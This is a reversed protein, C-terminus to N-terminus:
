MTAGPQYSGLEWSLGRALSSTCLTWADKNCVAAPDAWSTSGIACPVRRTSAVSGPMGLAHRPRRGCGSCYQLTATAPRGRACGQMGHAHRTRHGCGSCCQLTAARLLLLVHELMGRARPPRRACGSCCQSGALPLRMSACMQTGRAHRSRHRCGSCCQWTAVRLLLLVHELMGCARPAQARLWQLVTLQGNFAAYKCVDADWPCPPDQARLWQLVSLHGGKAADVCVQKGWSCPQQQARLWQLVELHGFKAAAACMDTEQWPCPPNQARLWQLVALHGCGAAAKCVAAARDVDSSWGCPPQLAQLYQLVQLHGGAAAALCAHVRQQASSSRYPDHFPQQRTRRQAWMWQLASVDGHRAARLFLRWHQERELAPWAEQVLWLPVAYASVWSTYYDGSGEELHQRQGQLELQKPQAWRRWVRGLESVTFVQDELPLRAFVLQLAFDPLQQRGQVRAARQEARMTAAM